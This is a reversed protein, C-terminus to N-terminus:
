HKEMLLSLAPYDSGAPSSNFNCKTSPDYVHINADQNNGYQNHYYLKGNSAMTLFAAASSTTFVETTDGTAADLMLITKSYYDSNNKQYSLYFKGDGAYTKSYPKSNSDSNYPFNIKVTEPTQENFNIVYYESPNNVGVKNYFIGEEYQHSM